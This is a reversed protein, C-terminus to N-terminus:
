GEPTPVPPVMHMFEDFEPVDANKYAQYAEYPVAVRRYFEQSICALIGMVSNILHYRIDGHWLEKVVGLIVRTLAYNLLGPAAAAVKSHLM